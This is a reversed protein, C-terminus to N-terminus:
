TNDPHPRPHFYTCDYLGATLSPQCREALIATIIRGCGVNTSVVKGCYAPQHLHWGEDLHMMSTPDAEPSQLSSTLSVRPVMQYLLKLTKSNAVFVLFESSNEPYTKNHTAIADPFLSPKQPLEDVQRAIWNVIRALSRKAGFATTRM